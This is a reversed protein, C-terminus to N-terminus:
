DHQARLTNTLSDMSAVVLTDSALWLGSLLRAARLRRDGAFFVTPLAKM